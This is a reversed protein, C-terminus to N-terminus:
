INMNMTGDHRNIRVRVDLKAYMNLQTYAYLVVMRDVMYM